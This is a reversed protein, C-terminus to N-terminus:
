RARSRQALSLMSLSHPSHSSAPAGPAVAFHTPHVEHHEPGRGHRTISASSRPSCEGHGPLRRDGNSWTTARRIGSPAHQQAIPRHLERRGPTASSGSAGSAPAEVTVNFAVSGDAGSRPSRSSASLAARCTARRGSRAPRWRGRATRLRPDCGRPGDVGISPLMSGLILLTGLLVLAKSRFTARGGAPLLTQRGTTM